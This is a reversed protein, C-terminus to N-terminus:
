QLANKYVQLTEEAMKEWSYKKLQHQGKKVLEKKLSEDGLLESVKQAIDDTSEPNFYHAADGYIEPLCTANSSVLPCSHAMAELGPLGFGESLSPLVYAEAHQYLWKLETDDVFGPLFIDKQAPSSAIHKQLQEFYYEKKGALVLQLDPHTQKLVEFATVLREINKHPFPSGVHLLFSKGLKDLRPKKSEGKIPPESAEYTVTTKHKTFSHLHALDNAVFKTPVIIHKALRHSWWFLLKYVWIKFNYIIESSGNTRRHKYMTLDHTFTLRKGFYFMPEQPTMGFHVLEPKLRYLFAAFSIQDIPNLSFRRYKCAMSKFNKSKPEWTDDPELLITYANEKDIAQLHQLLRDIPKGSSGQRIRADIVIHNM